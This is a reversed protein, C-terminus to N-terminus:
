SFLDLRVKFKKNKVTAEPPGIWSAKVPVIRDEKYGSERTLRRYHARREHPRPSSRSGKEPHPLGLKSRIEGPRLMTYIPRQHSRRVKKGSGKKQKAPQEELTFYQPSSFYLIEELATIANRAVRNRYEHFYGEM